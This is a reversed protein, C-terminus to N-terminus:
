KARAHAGDVFFVDRITSDVLRQEEATLYLPAYIALGRLDDARLSRGIFKVQQAIHEGFTSDDGDRMKNHAGIALITKGRMGPAYRELEDRRRLFPAFDAVKRRGEPIYVELLVVDCDDRIVRLLDSNSEDWRSADWVFIFQQPFEWRVKRLVRALIDRQGQTLNHAVVEDISIGAAGHMNAAFYKYLDEETFLSRFPYVRNLLVKGNNAWYKRVERAGHEAGALVDIVNPTTM